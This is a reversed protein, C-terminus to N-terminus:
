TSEFSYPSRLNRRSRLNSRIKRLSKGKSNTMMKGSALYRKIPDSKVPEPLIKGVSPNESLVSNHLNIFIKRSRIVRHKKKQVTKSPSIKLQRLSPNLDRMSFPNQRNEKRAKMVLNEKSQSSIRGLIRSALRERRLRDKELKKSGVESM